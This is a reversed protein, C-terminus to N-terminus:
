GHQWRRRQVFSCNTRDDLDTAFIVSQFLFARLTSEADLIPWLREVFRTMM